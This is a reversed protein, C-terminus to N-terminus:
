FKIATSPDEKKSKKRIYYALVILVFILTAMPYGIAMALALYLGIVFVVLLVLIYVGSIVRIWRGPGYKYFFYNGFRKVLSLNLEFNNRYDRIFFQLFVFMALLFFSAFYVQAHSIESWSKGHTIFLDYYVNALLNLLFGIVSAVVIGFTTDFRKIKEKNSEEM